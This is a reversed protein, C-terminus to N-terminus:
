VQDNQQHDDFVYSFPQMYPQFMYGFGPYFLAKPSRMYYQQNQRGPRYYQGNLLTTFCCVVLCIVALKM